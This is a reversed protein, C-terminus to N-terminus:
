HLIFNIILLVFSIAITSCSSKNKQKEKKDKKKDEKANEEQLDEFEEELGMAQTTVVMDDIIDKEIGDLDPGTTDVVPVFATKAKLPKCDYKKFRDLWFNTSGIINVM